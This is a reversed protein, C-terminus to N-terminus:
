DGEDERDNIYTVAKGRANFGDTVNTITFRMTAEPQNLEPMPLVAIQMIAENLEDLSADEKDAIEKYSEISSKLTEVSQANYQFPKNGINATPVTYANALQKLSAKASAVDEEVTLTTPENLLNTNFFRVRYPWQEHTLNDGWGRCWYTTPAGSVILWLNKTGAPCEFEVRIKNDKLTARAMDGYVRTGDTKLAVFGVRWGAAEPKYSRYGSTQGMGEFEAVLKKQTGPVNLKIANNGCNEPANSPSITWFPNDGNLMNAQNRKGITGAGATRLHDFDFTAM